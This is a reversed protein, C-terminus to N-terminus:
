RKKETWPFGMFSVIVFMNSCLINKIQTIGFSSDFKCYKCFYGCEPM